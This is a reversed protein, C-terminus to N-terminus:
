RLESANLDSPAPVGAANMRMRLVQEEEFFDAHLIEGWAISHGDAMALAKDGVRNEAVHRASAEHFASHDSTDTEPEIQTEWQGNSQTYPLPGHIQHHGRDHLLVITSITDPPQGREDFPDTGLDDSM